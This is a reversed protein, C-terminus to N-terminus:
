LRRRHDALSFGALPGKVARGLAMAKFREGMQGPLTLRRVQQALEFQRAPDAAEHVAAMDALGCGLLFHAQTTFGLVDLGADSAAEAVATFDVSASIDQLGPHLFPDYHARHRFHCILAGDTRDPHYYEARPYGYDIVLIVGAELVDALGALWPGLDLNFETTYGDPLDALRSGIVRHVHATLEASPRVERWTFGERDAAVAMEVVEPAVRVRVVPMADAVENALMIGRIPAEPLRDLWHV